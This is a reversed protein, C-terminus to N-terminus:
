LITNALERYAIAWWRQRGHPAGCDEAGLTLWEVHFRSQSLLGLVDGVPAPQVPLEPAIVVSEGREARQQREWYANDSEGPLRNKYADAGTYQKPRMPALLGPVNELFLLQIGAEDAVRLIEGFLYREDEIGARKGAVSFPQCPFGATIAQAYGRFRVGDAYRVDPHIPADDLLGDHVRARIVKQAAASSEIYCITRPELGLRRLAAGAGIDLM